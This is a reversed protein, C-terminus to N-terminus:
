VTEHNAIKKSTTNTLVFFIITALLVFGSLIKYTIDYGIGEFVYGIFNSVIFNFISGFVTVVFAARTANKVGVLQIIYRFHIFLTLGWGVGRLCAGFILVWVPLGTFSIILSRMFYAFGAILIIKKPKTNKFIYASILMIIVEVIIMGSYIFSYESVTFGLEKVFLLSVYNDGIISLTVIFLYSIAYIIFLKNKFIEKFSINTEVEKNSKEVNKLFKAMLGVLIFLAGAISFTYTYGIKEILIGGLATGVMYAISGAVRINSYLKKHTECYAAAHGDLMTYYPSAAIAMLSTFIMILEITNLNSYIILVIGEIISLIILLLKSTKNNKAIISWIPNVILCTITTISQVNGILGEKLGISVLFVTIFSYFMADAFYRLFYIVKLYLFEFNFKKELVANDM